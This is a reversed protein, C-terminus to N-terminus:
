QPRRMLSDGYLVPSLDRPALSNPLSDLLDGSLEKLRLEGVDAPTDPLKVYLDLLRLLEVAQEDTM